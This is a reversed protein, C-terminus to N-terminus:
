GKRVGIATTTQNFKNRGGQSGEAQKLSQIREISLRQEPRINGIKM